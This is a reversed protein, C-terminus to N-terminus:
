SGSEMRAERARERRNGRKSRVVPVPLGRLSELTQSAIAGTVSGLVCGAIALPPAVLFVASTHLILAAVALQGANHLVASIVSVAVIDLAGWARLAAMGAFALTSGAFSYLAMLPSGFLLSGVAIKMIVVALGWRTGFSYLAILVAINGLGLKFGPILAPLPILAEVYGLAITLSAFLAIYSARVARERASSPSSM